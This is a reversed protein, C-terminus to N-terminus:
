VLHLGSTIIKFLIKFDSNNAYSFICLSPGGQSQNCRQFYDSADIALTEHFLIRRTVFCLKNCKGNLNKLGFVIDFKISEDAVLNRNKSNCHVVWFGFNHLAGCLLWFQVCYEKRLFSTIQEELIGIASSPFQTYKIRSGPQLTSIQSIYCNSDFKKFDPLSAHSFHLYAARSTIAANLLTLLVM